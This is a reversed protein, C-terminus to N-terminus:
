QPMMGRKECDYTTDFSPLDEQLHLQHQAIGTEEEFERLASGQPREGKKGYGKPFGWFSGNLQKVLLFCFSETGDGESKLTYPIV